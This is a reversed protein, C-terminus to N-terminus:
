GPSIRIIVRSRAGLLDRERVPPHGLVRAALPGVAVAVLLLFLDVEDRRPLQLELQVVFRRARSRSRPGRGGSVHRETHFSSGSSASSMMTEFATGPPDVSSASYESFEPGFYGRGFGVM